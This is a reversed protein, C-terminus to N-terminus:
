PSRGSDTWCTEDGNVHKSLPGAADAIDDSLPQNLSTSRTWKENVSLAPPFIGNEAKEMDNVNGM